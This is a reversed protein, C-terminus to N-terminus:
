DTPPVLWMSRGTEPGSLTRPVPRETQLRSRAFTRSPDYRHRRVTLPRGPQMWGEWTDPAPGVPLPDVLSPGGSLASPHGQGTRALPAYRTSRLDQLDADVLSDASWVPFYRRDQARQEWRWLRADPGLQTRLTDLARGFARRLRYDAFYTSTDRLTPVHGLEGRYAQMWEEFLLAGISQADYRHDWNRVYTATNGATRSRGALAQLSPEVHPLMRAAWASSDDAAWRPVALSDAPRLRSRLAQAQVRTWPVSRGVVAAHPGTVTVPPTGLVEWSGNQALQLGDASFLDFAPSPTTRPSLGGHRLWAGVDSATSFGAWRVTWATDPVAVTTSDTTDAAPAPVRMSDTGQSAATLALPLGTDLRQVRVLEEDAGSPDLREYWDTLASSDFPVRVLRRRSHLLSAWARTPSTGSPFLVTGPLTAWSTRPGNPPQWLAEQVIPLASAGLVHRQFLAARSTDPARGPRAAWAVSRSWGHLHLWRRLTRDAEAFADVAPPATPPATVPPTAIWALLRQVLLTHWPAWSRPRMNLLVFPAADRVRDTDLAANLGRAYAQLLRKQSAPLSEYATRAHRALGLRRTHRDLPLVGPGFWESLRGLATQQWLVATWGRNLGHAYGLATLAAATSDANIVPVHEETWQVRVSDSLGTVTRTSAYPSPTRVIWWTLVGVLLVAALGLSLRLSRSV